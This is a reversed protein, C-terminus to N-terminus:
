CKFCVGSRSAYFVIEDSSGTVLRQDTEMIWKWIIGNMLVDSVCGQHFM